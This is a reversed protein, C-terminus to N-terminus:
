FGLFGRAAVDVLAPWRGVTAVTFAVFLVLCGDICFVLWGPAAAPACRPAHASARYPSLARRDAHPPAHEMM